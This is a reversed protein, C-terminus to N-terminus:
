AIPDSGFERESREPCYFVVEAPEDLDDRGLYAGGASRSSPSASSVL